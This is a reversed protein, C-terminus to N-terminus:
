FLNILGFVKKKELGLWTVKTGLGSWIMLVAEDWSLNVFQVSVSTFNCM